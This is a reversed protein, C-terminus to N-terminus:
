RNYESQISSVRNYKYFRLGVSGGDAVVHEGELNNLADKLFILAKDADAEDSGISPVTVDCTVTFLVRGASQSHKKFWNSM